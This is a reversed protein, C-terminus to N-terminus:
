HGRHGLHRQLPASARRRQVLVSGVEPSVTPEPWIGAVPRPPVVPEPVWRGDPDVTVVTAPWDSVTTPIQYRYGSGSNVSNVYRPAPTWYQPPYAPRRSPRSLLHILLALLLTICVFFLGIVLVKVLLPILVMVVAAGIMALWAVFLLGFAVSGKM